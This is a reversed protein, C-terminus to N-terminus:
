NLQPRGPKIYRHEMGLDKVLWNFRSQFEHGNDTQVTHIRFSFKNAVYDMFDISSSQNHSEYVKLARIRTCDDIAM